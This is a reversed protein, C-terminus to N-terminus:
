VVIPTTPHTVQLHIDHSPQCSLFTLPIQFESRPQLSSDLKSRPQQMSKHNKAYNGHGIDLLHHVSTQYHKFSSFPHKDDVTSPESHVTVFKRNPHFKRSQGIQFDCRIEGVTDKRCTNLVKFSNKRDAGRYLLYHISTHYRQIFNDRFPHHKYYKM